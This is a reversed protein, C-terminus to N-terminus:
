EYNHTSGGTSLQWRGGHTQNSGARGNSTSDAGQVHANARGEAGAGSLKFM